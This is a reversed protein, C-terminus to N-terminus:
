VGKRVGEAIAKRAENFGPVSSVLSKLETEWLTKAMNLRSIFKKVNWEMNYYRLKKEVLDKDFEAGKELLFWLDYVDRAKTRTLVARIKEALIEKEQMVFVDFTPIEELFRGITKIEPKLIVGERFSLDIIFKCLSQRIGIYLPGRIRFTIKIDDPYRKTEMEFDLNFRKIGSEIKKIDIEELCTFDLDESFRPLGYCKKLATGGKFVVGRGYDQYILFLIINQFYDKEAQGLNLGARKAYERLEEKTIMGKGEMQQKNKEM